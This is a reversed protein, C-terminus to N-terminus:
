GECSKCENISRSLALASNVGKQYYFAKIGNQWGFILLQSVDKPPTSPHVIINLSQGQDIFRQRQAAQIVIEKQSIECFTKFVDKEEESFFSLHSVSGGNNLISTWVDENDKQKSALLSKLIPNKYTFTGKALKKVFYNSDIPEIGESVQGLIFSSSKTPAVAIRTAMREGTGLMLEPEGYQSALEKSAKLTKENILKFIESNLYKANMSEFPIMKSQLLAM